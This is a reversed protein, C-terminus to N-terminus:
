SKPSSAWTSSSYEETSLRKGERIKGLVYEVATKLVGYTV